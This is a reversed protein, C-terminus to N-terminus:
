RKKRGRKLTIKKAELVQKSFDVSEKKSLNEEAIEEFTKEEEKPFNFMKKREVIEEDTGHTIFENIFSDTLINDYQRYTKGDKKYTLIKGQRKKISITNIVKEKQLFVTKKSYFSILKNWDSNFSCGACSPTSNFTQKFFDLYLSMLNSDSRVKHKNLLIFEEVTM